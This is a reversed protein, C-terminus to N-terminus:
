TSGAAACVQPVSTTAAQLARDLAALSESTIRAAEHETVLQQSVLQQAYATPVPVARGIAQYMLPQTFSPEDLENHGHRRYVHLDVFADKGFRQQYQVALETARFVADPYLGNVHFVPAAVLKAPDSAYRTSRGLHPPTTYGLQNNVIVHVSGGVDFDPLRMLQLTEM